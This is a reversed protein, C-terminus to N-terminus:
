QRCQEPCRGELGPLDRGFLGPLGGCPEPLRGRRSPSPHGGRPLQHAVTFVAGGAGRSRIGGIVNEVVRGTRAEDDDRAVVHGHGYQAVGEVAFERRPRQRGVQLRPEVPEPLGHVLGTRGSQLGLAADRLGPGRCAAAVDHDLEFGCEPILVLGVVPQARGILLGPGIGSTRGCGHGDGDAVVLPRFPARAGQRGIGGSAIAYRNRSKRQAM